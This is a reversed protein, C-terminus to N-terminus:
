GHLDRWDKKGGRETPGLGDKNRRGFVNRKLFVDNVDDFSIAKDSLYNGNNFNLLFRSDSINYYRSKAVTITPFFTTRGDDEFEFRQFIHAYQCKKSLATSGQLDQIGLQRGMNDGIDKKTHAIALVPLNLKVAINNIMRVLISQGVMGHHPEYLMSTTVNDYVIIQATSEEVTQYIWNAIDAAPADPIPCSDEHLNLINEMNAGDLTSLNLEIEDVDGESLVMLVRGQKSYDAIVAQALKSKGTGTSGMLLHMNGPRLGNHANLFGFKSPWPTALSNLKTQVRAESGKSLHVTM